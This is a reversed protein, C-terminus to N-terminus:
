LSQSHHLVYVLMFLNMKRLPIVFLLIFIHKRLSDLHLMPSTLVTRNSGGEGNLWRYAWLVSTEANTYALQGEVALYICVSSLLFPYIYMLCFGLQEPYFM